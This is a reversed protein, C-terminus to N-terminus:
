SPIREGIKLWIQRKGADDIRSWEGIEALTRFCGECWGTDPNMVCISVCPSPVHPQLDSVVRQALQALRSLRSM